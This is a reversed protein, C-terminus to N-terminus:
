QRYGGVEGASRARAGDPDLGVERRARRQRLLDWCQDLAAEVAGLREREEAPPVEGRGVRERLGHEEDVLATIRGLIDTDDM